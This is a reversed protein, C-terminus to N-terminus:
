DDFNFEKMQSVLSDEEKKEKVVTKNGKLIDKIYASKDSHRMIENYLELDERNHKFSLTIKPM